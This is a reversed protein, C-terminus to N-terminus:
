DEEPLPRPIQDADVSVLDSIDPVIQAQQEPEPAAAATEEDTFGATM